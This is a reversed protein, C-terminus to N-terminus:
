YKRGQDILDRAPAGVYIERQLIRAMAEEPTMKAAHAPIPGIQAV